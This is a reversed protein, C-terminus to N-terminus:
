EKFFNSPYSILVSKFKGKYIFFSSGAIGIYNYDKKIKIIENLDQLGGLLTLPTKIYALLENIIFYDYGQM